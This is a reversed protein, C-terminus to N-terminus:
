GPFELVWFRIAPESIGEGKRFLGGLWVFFGKKVLALALPYVWGKRQCGPKRGM